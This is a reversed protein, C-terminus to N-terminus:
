RPAASSAQAPVRAPAPSTAAGYEADSSRAGTRPLASPTTTAGSPDSPAAAPLSRAPADLADQDQIGHPNPLSGSAAATSGEGPDLESDMGPLIAEDGRSGAGGFGTNEGSSYDHTQNNNSSIFM